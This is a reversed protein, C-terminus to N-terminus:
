GFTFVDVKATVTKLDAMFGARAIGTGPISDPGPFYKGYPTVIAFIGQAGLVTGPPRFRSFAMFGGGVLVATMGGATDDVVTIGGAM